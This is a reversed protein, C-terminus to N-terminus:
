GPGPAPVVSRHNDGRPIITALASRHPDFEYAVKREFCDDYLQVEGNIFEFLPKGEFHLTELAARSRAPEAWPEIVLRYVYKGGDLEAELECTIFRKDLWRTRQGL